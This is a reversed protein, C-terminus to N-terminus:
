RNREKQEPKQAFRKVALRCGRFNIVIATVFTRSFTSRSCRLAMFSLCEVCLDYEPHQARVVSGVAAWRAIEM